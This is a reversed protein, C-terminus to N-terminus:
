NPPGPPELGVSQARCADTATPCGCLNDGLDLLEAVVGDETEANFDFSQCLFMSRAVGLYGGFSAAGARASDAVLTDVVSAGAPGGKAQVSIGDGFVALDNSRTDRIHCGEITAEATVVVLGAAHSEEILMGRATLKAPVLTDFSRQVHVGHGGLGEQNTATARVISREATGVSSLLTFGAGRGGEVISRRLTLVGQVGDGDQAGAGYAAGVMDFQTDRVCTLDIHAESGVTWVGFGHNNSLLSGRVNVTSAFSTSTRQSGVGYGGGFMNPVTDRVVTAEVDAVAGYADIGAASNREVLSSRVLLMSSQTSMLVEIGRGFQGAGDSNTDRVVTAHVEGVSDAVFVSIQRNNEILSRTLLLSGGAGTTGGFIVNVARGFGGLGGLATNAIVTSDIDVSAGAAFVGFARNDSIVSGTVTLVSPSATASNEGAEVGRGLTSRVVSVDLELTAGRAFIGISQNAEVLANSVVAQTVGLDDQLNVGVGFNDHVWVSDIILQAAGSADIGNYPGTVSVNRVESADAGPNIVLTAFSAGTGVIEVQAPCVGWLVVPQGALLLDEAYSGAAVAVVAGSAAADIGAQITTWPASTTGDSPGGAVDYAADVYETTLAGPINGWQGTGCDVIARCTTEGPVAMLGPACAAGPLLADCGVDGDHVFGDGCGDSPVGAALCSGDDLELEGPMCPMDSPLGAAECVGDVDIEGPACGELMAGGMGGGGSAGGGSSSGEDEGGCGIHLAVLMLVAGRV